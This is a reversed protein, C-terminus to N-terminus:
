SYSSRVRRLRAQSGTLGGHSCSFGACHVFGALLAGAVADKVGALAAGFFVRRERWARERRAALAFPATLAAALLFVWAFLLLGAPQSPFRALGALALAAAFFKADGGAWAGVAYLAVGFAFSILVFAYYLWPAGSLLALALALALAANNLANPIRRERYDFRAAVAAFAALAAVAALQL